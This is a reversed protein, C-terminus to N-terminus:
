VANGHNRRTDDTPPIGTTPGGGGYQQVAALPTIVIYFTAQLAVSIGGCDTKLLKQLYVQVCKKKKGNNNRRCGLGM